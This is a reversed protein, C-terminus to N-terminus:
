WHVTPCMRTCPLVRLSWLIADPSIVAGMDCFLVGNKMHKEITRLQVDSIDILAEMNDMFQM